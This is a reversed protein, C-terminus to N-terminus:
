TFLQEVGKVGLGPLQVLEDTEWANMRLSRELVVLNSVVAVSRRVAAFALMARVIQHGVQVVRNM